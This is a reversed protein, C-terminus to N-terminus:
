LQFKCNVNAIQITIEDRRKLLTAISKERLKLRDYLNTVIRSRVCSSKTFACNLETVLIRSNSNFSLNIFSYVDYFPSISPRMVRMWYEHYIRIPM